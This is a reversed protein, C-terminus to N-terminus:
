EQNRWAFRKSPKGQKTYREVIGPHDAELATKDLSTRGAVPASAWVKGTTPDVIGRHDDSWRKLIEDAFEATKKVRDCALKLMLASEPTLTIKNGVLPALLSDGLEPPLLYEPCRMQQYCNSCHAGMTPVGDLHLIAAKTTCWLDVAERSALDIMKSWEWQAEVLGWIGCAFRTCGHKAAVAYAYALNQLNLPGDEMTYKSRKIDGIYAVDGVIWYLDPTGETIADACGPQLYSGDEGLAVTVEKEADEYRLITGDTFVIEAPPQWTNMEEREDATLRAIMGKAREEGACAAHFCSSVFAHRSAGDHERGLKASLSCFKAVPLSSPRNGIMAEM